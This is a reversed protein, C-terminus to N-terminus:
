AQPRAAGARLREIEELVLRRNNAAAGYGPNIKLAREYSAVADEFRQLEELVLGRNNLIPAAEPAIALAKDYSALAEEFRSLDALINGRNYLAELAGPAVAVAKDYSALAEEPRKLAELLLGRMNFATADNPRLRLLADCNALAADFRGLDFLISARSSLAVIDDPKLSLAKEFQALAEEHRNLKQLELGRTNLIAVDEVVTVPSAAAPPLHFHTAGSGGAQITSKSKENKSIVLPPFCVFINLDRCLGNFTVDLGVNPFGVSNGPGRVGEPWPVVAPRLPFCKRKLNEAGKPSVTYCNSGFAWLLRYARPSISTQQFTRTNLRMKDQNFHVVCPSVGPLLDFALFADFNYAWIILDWDPPLTKVLEAAEVDFNLNFITDDDAVTIQEASEIAKNWLLIDSMVHCLAGIPYTTLIDSTVLGQRTLADLDVRHEEFAAVRTIQALHSNVSQFEALRDKSRDLNIFHVHL